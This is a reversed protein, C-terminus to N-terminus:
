REIARHLFAAMQGRTVTEDPCFRDSACGTTIGAAALSEIDAQFPTSDDDGFTDTAVQPLRLARALFAAMQGRTVPDDPCFRDNVPPNCGATIGAGVLSEIDAQFPTPDDDLFTDGAVAPLHLGRNLFAAMQGRTVPDEPCFRDNGPPNCGATIGSAVLWRIDESFVSDNPVDGFPMELEPKDSRPEPPPPSSPIIHLFSSRAVNWHTDLYSGSAPTPDFYDDRNCDLRLELRSDECVREVQAGSGDNYCMIDYDDTCHGNTTSHPASQQVAGLMHTLEHAEVLGDRDWCDRDVRAWLAYAGNNVNEQGPRDDGFGVAIGCYVSADVWTLYHRGPVDLGAESLAAITAAFSDDASPPVVVTEVDAVCDGDHVWRVTLDAGYPASSARFIADVDAIARRILPITAASRNSKDAAVVYVAQIRNGSIGDDVCTVTPDSALSFASASFAKPAEDPVPDPGHTCAVVGSPLTMPSGNPCIPESAGAPIGLLAMLSGM